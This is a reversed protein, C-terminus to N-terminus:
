DSLVERLFSNLDQIGSFPEVLALQHGLEEASGGTVAQLTRVIDAMESRDVAAPSHFNDSGLRNYADEVPFSAEISRLLQSLVTQGASDLADSLAVVLPHARNIEYRFTNRDEILTWLHQITDTTVPRGRFKHTRRSPGIMQGAIQALRRRVQPPPAASSKKIDLAWLHDLANPLDVQIRALKGLEDRPMIRFWTGWLLLRGARYVYFGQSDRLTGAIQAVERDAARLKSIYPLTFPQVTVWDDDVRIREKQGVQTAKNHKLFPDITPVAAGNIRLSLRNTLPPMTSGTFRHFVLALHDRVSHMQEDLQSEVLEPATHLQDLKEWLVLTGTCQADLRGIWPLHLIDEQNLIQLAWRGTEALHDLDWRVARVGRPQKTAVTVSRGQSLSATKLGLGFRGLDHPERSSSPSRGALQMAQILTQHDMGTGNDLVAIRVKPSSSFLVDVQDASATISNDIVDAVATELTYGVARMSEM